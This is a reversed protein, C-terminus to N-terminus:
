IKQWLVCNLLDIYGFEQKIHPFQEHVRLPGECGERTLGRGGSAVVSGTRDCLKTKGMLSCWLLAVVCLISKQIQSRNNLLKQFKDVCDNM